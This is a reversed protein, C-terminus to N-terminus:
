SRLTGFCEDAPCGLREQLQGCTSDMIITASIVRIYDVHEKALIKKKVGVHPQWQGGMGTRTLAFCNEGPEGGGGRSGSGACGFNGWEHGM